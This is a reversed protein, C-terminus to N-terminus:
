PKNAERSSEPVVTTIGFPVMEGTHSNAPM